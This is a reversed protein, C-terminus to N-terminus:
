KLWRRIKQFIQDFIRKLFRVFIENGKKLGFIDAMGIELHDMREPIIPRDGM